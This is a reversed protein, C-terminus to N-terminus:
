QQPISVGDMVMIAAGNAGKLGDVEGISYTTMMGQAQQGIFVATASGECTVACTAVSGIKLGSDVLDFENMDVFSVPNQNEMIFDVPTAANGDQVHIQYSELIRTQFNSVATIDVLNSQLGQGNTPTTGGALTYHETTLLGGLATLQTATTLKDSYIYHLDGFTQQPVGDEKLEYTNAWRGWNVGLPSGGINAVGAAGGSLVLTHQAGDSSEQVAVPINDITTGNAATISGLAINNNASGIRIGAAIHEIITTNSEVGTFGVLMASGNPAANIAPTNNLPNDNQENLVPLNSEIFEDVRAPLNGIGGQSVILTKLKNQVKDQDGSKEMNDNLEAMEAKVKETKQQDQRTYRKENKGHFVPPPKLQEIPPAVNSEVHFYQDNDFSFEGSDNAIVVSGDIVGGYLGDKMAVEEGACSGSDCLMLGYHTGRIGITAISTKILYNNKNIHGILGTITRLGGSLLEFFSKESGDETGNFNYESIKLQTKPRLSILAGDKMRIQTYANVATKLTDGKLIESNRSLPRSVGRNDAQLNGVNVVVKGIIEEPDPVVVVPEDIVEAEAEQAILEPEPQPDPLPEPVVEVVPKAVAFGPLNLITGVSMLNINGKFLDSNSEVLEERFQKQKARDGPFVKRAIAYVSDGKEVRWRSDGVVEAYVTPMYFWASLIVLTSLSILRRYLGHVKNM